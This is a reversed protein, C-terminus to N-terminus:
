YVTPVVGVGVVLVGVGVLFSEKADVGSTRCRMAGKLERLVKCGEDVRYRM